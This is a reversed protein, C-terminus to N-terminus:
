QLEIEKIDADIMRKIMESFGVKSQWGLNQRAKSADGVVDDVETPRFFEESVEILTDGTNRDIGREDVGEGVWEIEFGLHQAAVQVFDRISHIKGTAIIYDDPENQQLMRWMADVYEPAYGWDRKVNLNGLQLTDQLNYKIRTLGHTIKRTVFSLGRLPSEHNYLIGSCAFLNYAERYNVTSCHAFLKATAYPSRPYFPTMENQPIERVKGFMESTSAQYFRIEHSSKRIAELMKLTSIGTAEATQLPQEFSAGVSSQAALNYVEHPKISEFTHLIEKFNQIDFACIRIEDYIDLSKLRRTDLEIDQRDMGYVDYGKELLLKSLYAGDQGAIGTILARRNEKEKQM